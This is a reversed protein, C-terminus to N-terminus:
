QRFEAIDISSSAANTASKVIWAGCGFQEAPYIQTPVTTSGTQLFGHSAQLTATATNDFSIYLADVSTIARSACNRPAPTPPFLVVVSAPGIAVQSSTALSAPVSGATGGLQNGALAGLLLTLIAILATKLKNM